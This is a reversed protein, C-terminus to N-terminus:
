FSDLFILPLMSFLWRPVACHRTVVKGQVALPYSNFNIAKQFEFSEYRLSSIWLQLWTLLENFIFSSGSVPLRLIMIVRAMYKVYIHCTIIRSRAKLGFM